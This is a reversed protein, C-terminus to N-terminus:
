ELKEAELLLRPAGVQFPTGQLDSWLARVALGAEDLMRGIEGVSFIWHRAPRREVRRGRRLTYLTDLRSLAPTYTHTVTVSIGAVTERVEDELHPLVCEAAMETDLVLRGGSVLARGVGRLFARTGASDRGAFSNGWCCVAHFREGFRLRRMDGQRWEVPPGEGRGHRRAQRRAQRRAEALLVPDADLGTVAYGRRALELAVRGEGCPVDLVQAGPRLISAAEMFDVEARTAEPPRAARWAELALGRFFDESWDSSM